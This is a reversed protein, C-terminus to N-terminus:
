GPAPPKTTPASRRCCGTTSAPAAATPPGARRVHRHDALHPDRARGGHARAGPQRRDRGADRPFAGLAPDRAAPRPAGPRGGGGGHAGRAPAPGAGAGAGGASACSGRSSRRAARRLRRAGAARTPRAVFAGRNAHLEVIERGALVVLSRRVRARGVGFAECLAAESLKTGPPLRQEIVADHIRRVIEDEGVSSGDRWRRDHPTMEHLAGIRASNWPCISAEALMRGESRVDLGFSNNVIARGRRGM